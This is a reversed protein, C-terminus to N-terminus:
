LKDLLVSFMIYSKVLLYRFDRLYNEGTMGPSNSLAVTEHLSEAPEVISEVSMLLATPSVICKKGPTPRIAKWIVMLSSLM